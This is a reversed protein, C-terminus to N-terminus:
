RNRFEAPNKEQGSATAGGHSGMAPIIFPHAGGSKLQTGISRLIEVLGAIERSGATIAIQKGSLDAGELKKMEAQMTGEIDEVSRRPFHQEVELMRPFDFNLEGELTIHTQELRM